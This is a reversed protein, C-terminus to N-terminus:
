LFGCVQGYVKEGARRHSWTEVMLEMLTCERMSLNELEWSGGGLGRERLSCGGPVCSLGAAAKLEYERGGERLAASADDRLDGSHSWSGATSAKNPGFM